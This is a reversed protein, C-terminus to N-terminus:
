NNLWYTRISLQFVYNDGTSNEDQNEQPQISIDVIDVLRLSRHLDDLFKQFNQYNSIFSFSLVVSGYINNEKIEIKGVDVGKSKDVATDRVLTIDSMNRINNLKAIRDIDVILEINNIHDPLFKKIRAKDLDTISIYQNELEKKKKDIKDTNDFKKQFVAQTHRLDKIEQYTPDIFTLFTGVSIAILIIPFVLNM